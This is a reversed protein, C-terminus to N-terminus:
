GPTCQLISLPCALILHLHYIVILSRSYLQTTAMLWSFYICPRWLELTKLCARRLSGDLYWLLNASYQKLNLFFLSGENNSKSVHSWSLVNAACSAHMGVLSRILLFWPWSPSFLHTPFVYKPFSFHMRQSFLFRIWLHSLYSSIVAVSLIFDTFFSFSHKM